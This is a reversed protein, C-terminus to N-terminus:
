ITVLKTIDLQNIYRKSILLTNEPLVNKSSVNESLVNDSFDYFLQIARIKFLIM